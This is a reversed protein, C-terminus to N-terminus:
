QRLQFRGREAQGDLAGAIVPQFGIARGTRVLIEGLRELRQATPWHAESQVIVLQPVGICALELSWGNGSSIAFHCRSLRASIEAPETAVALREPEAEALQTLP